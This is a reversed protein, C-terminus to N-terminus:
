RENERPIARLMGTLNRTAAEGAVRLGADRAAATTGPGITVIATREGLRARGLFGAVSSPSAFLAVDVDLTERADEPLPPLPRTRYVAVHEVRARRASELAELGGRTEEAGAHLVLPLTEGAPRPPLERALDEALSVVQGDSAELTVTLGAGRARATTQPGVSAVPVGIALPAGLIEEIADVARASTLVLMTCRALAGSLAARADLITETTISPRLVARAGLKALEEAWLSAGEDARTVLISRGALVEALEAGDRRAIM